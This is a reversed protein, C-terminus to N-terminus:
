FLFTIFLILLNVVNRPVTSATTNKIPRAVVNVLDGIILKKSM